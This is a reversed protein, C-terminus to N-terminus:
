YKSSKRNASEPSIVKELYDVLRAALDPDDVLLSLEHNHKLASHTFNHSGVFSLHRDIVVIKTHTTTKASDFIVEVGNKKMIGAALRNERNLEQDYGSNELFVRVKIGRKAADSLEGALITPRNRKKGSVKFIYMALDISSKAQRIQALLAPFYDDDALIATEQSRTLTEAWVDAAPWPVTGALALFLIIYNLSRAV